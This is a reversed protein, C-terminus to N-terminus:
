DIFFHNFWAKGVRRTVRITNAATIIWFFPRGPTTHKNIYHCDYVITVVADSLKARNWGGGVREMYILTELFEEEEHSTLDIHYHNNLKQPM